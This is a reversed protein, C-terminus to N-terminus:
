RPMVFMNKVLDCCAVMFKFFSYCSFIELLILYSQGHRVLAPKTKKLLASLRGQDVM